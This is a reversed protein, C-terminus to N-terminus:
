DAEIEEEEDSDEMLYKEALVSSIKGYKDRDYLGSNFMSVITERGVLVVDLLVVNMSYLLECYEDAVRIEYDSIKPYDEDVLEIIIVNRAHVSLIDDLSKRLAVPEGWQVSQCLCQFAQLTGEPTMCIHFTQPPTMKRLKNRCFKELGVFNRIRPKDSVSLQGYAEVLSGVSGLWQATRAGIGPVEMLEEPQACLVAELTGFRNILMHAMESTDQRPIAYFLLLEMIQHPNFADLGEKMARDRLRKRHGSHVNGSAM